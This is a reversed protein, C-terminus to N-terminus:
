RGGLGAAKRALADASPVGAQRERGHYSRSWRLDFSGLKAREEAIQELLVRLAPDHPKGRANVIEVLSSSDTRARLDRVGHRQRAVKMGRLLTAAEAHTPSPLFGLAVSYKGVPRMTPNRLVIGGGARRLEIGDVVKRVTPNLSADTELHYLTANM